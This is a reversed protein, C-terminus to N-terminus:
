HRSGSAGPWKSSCKKGRMLETMTTTTTTRPATTGWDSYNTIITRRDGLFSLEHHELRDTALPRSPARSGMAPLCVKGKAERKAGGAPGQAVDALGRLEQDTDWVFTSGKAQYGPGTLRRFCEEELSRNATNKNSRWGRKPVALM